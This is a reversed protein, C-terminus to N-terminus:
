GEREIVIMVTAVGTGSAKFSGAPLEHREGHLAAFWDRFVTAKRDQRFFPGTSMIAVLRGGPKLCEFAHRVHEIDQGNEFPPNMLVRDFQQRPEIALMDPGAVTYGKLQLVDRLTAHREYTTLRARKFRERVIDLIAGSGGEPELVDCEDAPMDAHFIMQEIVPVPTPFYGPINAFQLGDIKQRLAEAKLDAQPADAILAWLARAQETDSAARNTDVGADYYGANSRDIHSRMLGHVDAKTKVNALIPPVTGAQHHDALARLASQTRQLHRGDIRASAAERQRKPTNSLRDALKHDIDRQLGDALGRFKDALGAHNGTSKDRTANAAKELALDRDSLPVSEHFVRAGDRYASIEVRGPIHGIDEKIYTQAKPAPSPATLHPDRAFTEAKTRDKFAFGGPTGAWPRSYWGGLDKAANNLRDFEDRSVRDPLICIHMEFGKKTHQHTEIRIGAIGIPAATSETPAPKTEVPALSWEGSPVYRAAADGYFKVKSIKWGDNHRYGNKLYYGAGMSYKERHEASEPADALFATDPHNRAAARMESFIDRTHKSFALIITRTTKSNFYDSMSDSDDKVMQAVIVAKAWAPIRKAADAEFAAREKVEEERAREAASRQDAQFERAAAMRAPIESEPVHPLNARQAREIFPAAIGDILESVRNEFVCVYEASAPRMGGSLTFSNAPAAKIEAIFGEKGYMDLLPTGISVHANM